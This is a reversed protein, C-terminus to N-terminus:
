ATSGRIGLALLVHQTSRFQDSSDTYALCFVYLHPSYARSLTLRLRSSPRALENKPPSPSPSATLEGGHPKVDAQPAPSTTEHYLRRLFRLVREEYEEPHTNYLGCHFASECIYLEKPEKAREFLIESHRTPVIVDNTGHMLLVPRPSISDICHLAQCHKFPTNGVRTNLWFTCMRRFIKFMLQGCSNHQMYGSLYTILQHDLLSACTTIPNEAIVADINREIAAAMLVSSGGISTGMACIKRYKFEQRMFNTAAVVDYREYLGFTFGRMRGDSMGHERLDFLLLGYGEKHLFHTHRLWARRDRGGGHVMVIGLNKETGPPPPIHWGRLTYNETSKFKVEEYDIGLDTKPDTIWGQWYDPCAKMRLGEHQAIAHHYWPPRVAVESVFYALAVYYFGLTLAIFKVAFWVGNVLLLVLLPLVLCLMIKRMTSPSAVAAEAEEEEEYRADMADIEKTSQQHRRERTQRKAEVQSFLLTMKSRKKAPTCELPTKGDNDKITMDAGKFQLLYKAFRLNGRLCAIHLPTRGMEDVANVGVDGKMLVRVYLAINGTGIARHLDTM